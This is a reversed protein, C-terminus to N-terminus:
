GKESNASPSRLPWAKLIRRDPDLESLLSPQEAPCRGEFEPRLQTLGAGFGTASLEIVNFGLTM